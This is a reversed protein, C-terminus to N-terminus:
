DNRLAVVPDVRMARRSPVQCAFLAVIILLSSTVILTAPDFPAVGVLQARLVRNAAFSVVLGVALGVAVPTLEQRLVLRRIDSQAAGVAMRVGIEKTRQGVAYAVVAYLGVGALLLAIAAFAPAVAAYKGLEAHELDMRDRVFRFSDALTSFEELTLDPHFSQAATRVAAAIADSPVEVRAFFWAGREPAQAFPLYVLPAFRQRTPESQMINAVVGVITRWEGPVAGDYLRLRRGVPSEGAFYEAAFRENVIATLPMSVGDVVGFERGALTAAGVTAFYDSGATLM